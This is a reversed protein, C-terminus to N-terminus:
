ADVFWWHEILSSIKWPLRADSLVVWGDLGVAEVTAIDDTHQNQLTQGRYIVEGPIYSRRSDM